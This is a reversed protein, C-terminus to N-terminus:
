VCQLFTWYIFICYQEYSKITRYLFDLTLILNKKLKFSTMSFIKALDFCSEGSPMLPNIYNFLVSLLIKGSFSITWFMTEKPTLHLGDRIFSFIKRWITQQPQAHQMLFKKKLMICQWSSNSLYLSHANEITYRWMEYLKM